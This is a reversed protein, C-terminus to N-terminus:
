WYRYNYTYRPGCCNYGSNYCRYTVCCNSRYTQTHYYRPYGWNPPYARAPYGWNPPYARDPSGWNPPYARDMQGWNPGDAPPAAQTSAVTLGMLMVALMLAFLVVSIKRM